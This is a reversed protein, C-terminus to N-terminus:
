SALCLLDSLKSQLYSHVPGVQSLLLFAPSNKCGRLFPGSRQTPSCLNCARGRVAAAPVLVQGAVEWLVDRFHWVPAEFVNASM